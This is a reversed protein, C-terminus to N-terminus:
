WNRQAFRFSATSTTPYVRFDDTEVLRFNLRFNVTSMVTPDPFIRIPIDCTFEGAPITFETEWEFNVGEVPVQDSHGETTYQEIRVTRPKDSAMGVAQIRYYATAETVTPNITTPLANEVGGDVSLPADVVTTNLNAPVYFRIVDNDGEWYGARKEECAGLTFATAIM